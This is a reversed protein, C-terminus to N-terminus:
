ECVFVKNQFVFGVPPKGSYLNSFTVVNKYSDINELVEQCNPFHKKIAELMVKEKSPTDERYFASVIDKNNADLISYSIQLRDRDSGYPRFCIVLKKGAGNILTKYFGYPAKEDRRFTTYTVGNVTELKEIKEIDIQRPSSEFKGNKKLQHIYVGDRWTFYVDHDEIM